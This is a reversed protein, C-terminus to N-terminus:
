LNQGVVISPVALSGPDVALVLRKGMKCSAQLRKPLWGVRVTSPLVIFLTAQCSTVQM